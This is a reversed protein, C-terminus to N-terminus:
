RARTKKIHIDGDTTSLEILDGGGNIVGEATIYRKTRRRSEPVKDETEETSTLPFDSYINYDNWRSDLRIEARIRAPIQEPLYLIIEGGATRLDVGHEQSFDTLTIEVEIDGGATKGRVGGRVDKLEISGGSTAVSASGKVGTGEIDGGSTSADLSGGVESFGIDGGSTHVKVNGSVRKLDIDGGSTHADITGQVDQIGISGGSTHLEASAKARELVIDGGSTKAALEGGIDSLNLNGGSTKLIAQSSCSELEIDGGSTKANLKGGIKKLLIDGGSTHLDVDGNVDTVSLEGGRTQVDVSFSKPVNVSFDSKIWDRRYDEGRIEIVNGDQRYSSKAKALIAEAEKKTFVDMRKIEKVFVENKDWSTIEVDGRIKFIQLRGDASVKFSRTIEAVFYRGSKRIEQAASATATFFISSLLLTRVAISCVHKMKM